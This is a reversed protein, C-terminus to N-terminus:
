NSKVGANLKVQNAQAEDMKVPNHTFTHDKDIAVLINGRSINETWNNTFTCDYGYNLKFCYYSGIIVNDRVTSGASGNDLYIAFENSNTIYNEAILQGDQRGLCYIAGGDEILQLTKDIRNGVITNGSFMGDPFLKNITKDSGLENGGWGWGTSIGSYPLNCLTNHEIRTNFTYGRLIGTESANEKCIGDIYNNSILNDKTLEKGAGGKPLHDSDLFSGIIIGGGGSEVFSNATITANTTYRSFDIAYNGLCTFKCGSVTVKDTYNFVLAASPRLWMRDKTWQTSTTMESSKYYGAQIGQLGEPSNAQLWTSNAFTINIFQLNSVRADETGNVSVIHELEGLVANAKAMDEGGRPIYYLTNTTTDLYWEGAEDLFEYANEFCYLMNTLPTSGSYAVDRTDNFLRLAESSLKFYARGDQNTISEIPMRFLNFTHMGVFEIQSQNKLSVWSLDSSTFGGDALQADELLTVVEGPKLANGQYHKTIHRRASRARQALVGNVSFNRTDIDPATAKWINKSSDHLTWGSVSKGGSVTVNEDKYATYIVSHGNKGSDQADLEFTKDLYYTGERLYVVIDDTMSASIARVANRARELTKFPKDISGDNSDNGKSADVYFQVSDPSVSVSPLPLSPTPVQSPTTQENKSASPSVTQAPTSESPVVDPGQSATPTGTCATVTFLTLASLFCAIFRKTFKNM